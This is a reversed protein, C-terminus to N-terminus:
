GRVRIESFSLVVRGGPVPRGFSMQPRFRTFLMMHDLQKRVSPNDPGVLIHYGVAEGQANVTAEIMLLSAGYSAMSGSESMPFPPLSQLRAPQTLNTPVDNPVAGLPVGVFLNQVVVAFVLMAAMVGGTAPVAVPELINELILVANDWMRQWWVKRARALSAAVRIRMALGAPPAVREVRGMLKSLKRYRELELRCDACFDLHASIPQHERSPLAGDLYGPLQARIRWCTM